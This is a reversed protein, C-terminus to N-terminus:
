PEDVYGCDALYRMQAVISRFGRLDEAIWEMDHNSALVQYRQVFGEFLEANRRRGSFERYHMVEKNPGFFQFSGMRYTIWGKPSIKAVMAFGSPVVFLKYLKEEPQLLLHKILDHVSVLLM